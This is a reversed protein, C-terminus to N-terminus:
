EVEELCIKLDIEKLKSLLKEKEKLYKEMKRQMKPVVTLKLYRKNLDIDKVAIAPISKLVNDRLACAERILAEQKVMRTHNGDDVIKMEEPKIKESNIWYDFTRKSIGYEKLAQAPGFYGENTCQEKTM